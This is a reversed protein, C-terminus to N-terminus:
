RPCRLWRTQMAPLSPLELWDQLEAQLRAPPIRRGRSNNANRGAGNRGRNDGLSTPSDRSASADDLDSTVVALPAEDTGYRV